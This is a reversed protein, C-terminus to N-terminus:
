ICFGIVEKVLDIWVVFFKLLVIMLYCIIVYYIRGGRFIKDIFFFGIWLLNIFIM